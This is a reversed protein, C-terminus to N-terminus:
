FWNPLIRNKSLGKKSALVLIFTTRPIDKMDRLLAFTCNSVPFRAQFVYLIVSAKDMVLHTSNISLCLNALAAKSLFKSVNIMYIAVRSATFSAIFGKRMRRSAVSYCSLAGVLIGKSYASSASTKEGLKAISNGSFVPIFSYTISSISPLYGRYLGM